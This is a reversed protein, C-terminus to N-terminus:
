HPSYATPMVGRGPSTAERRVRRLLRDERMKAACDMCYPYSTVLPPLLFSLATVAIGDRKRSMDPCRRLAKRRGESSLDICTTAVFHCYFVNKWLGLSLFCVM